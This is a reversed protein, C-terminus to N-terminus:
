VQSTIAVQVRDSGRLIMLQFPKQDMVVVEEDCIALTQLVGTVIGM